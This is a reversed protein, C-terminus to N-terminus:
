QPMCSPVTSQATGFGTGSLAQRVQATKNPHTLATQAMAHEAIIDTPQQHAWVALPTVRMLCGNSLSQGNWQAFYLASVHFVCLRQIICLTLSLGALGTLGVNDTVGVSLRNFLYLSPKM